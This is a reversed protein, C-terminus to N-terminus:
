LSAGSPEGAGTSELYSKGHRQREFRGFLARKVLDGEALNHQAEIRALAPHAGGSMEGNPLAAAFVVGRTAEPFTEAQSGRHARGKDVVLYAVEDLIKDHLAADGRIEDAPALVIADPAGDAVAEIEGLTAEAEAARDAHRVAAVGGDALKLGAVEVPVM